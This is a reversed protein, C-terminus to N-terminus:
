EVIITESKGSYIAKIEIPATNDPFPLDIQKERGVLVRFKEIDVCEKGNINCQEGAFIQAHTEGINKVKIKGAERSVILEPKANDPRQFIWAAYAVMLKVGITETTELEGVVPTVNVKFFRDTATDELGVLRVRKEEGPELVVRQPSVLLGLKRPDENSIISESELGPDIVEVAKIKLFLRENGTNSVFLEEAKSQPALDIFFDSLKLQAHAQPIVLVLLCVAIILSKFM